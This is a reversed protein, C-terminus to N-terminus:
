SGCQMWDLADQCLQIKKLIVILFGSIMKIDLEACIYGKKFAGNNEKVKTIRDFMLM